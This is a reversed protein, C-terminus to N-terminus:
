LFRYSVSFALIDGYMKFYQSKFNTEFRNTSTASREYTETKGQEWIYCFTPQSSLQLAIRNKILWGVGIGTSIGIGVGKARSVVDIYVMNQEYGGDGDSYSETFPVALDAMLLLHLPAASTAWQGGIKPVTLSVKTSSYPAYVSRSLTARAALRETFHYRYGVQVGNQYAIPTYGAVIEHRHFSTQAQAFYTAFVFLLSLIQKM